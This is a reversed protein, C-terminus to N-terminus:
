YRYGLAATAGLSSGQTFSDGTNEIYDYGIRALVFLAGDRRTRVLDVSVTGNVGATVGWVNPDFDSRSSARQYVLVGFTLGLALQVRGSVHLNFAPGLTVVQYPLGIRTAGAEVSVRAGIGINPDQGGVELEFHAAAFDERLARRYSVGVHGQVLVTTPPSPARAVVTCCDQAPYPTPIEVMGPAPEDAHAAVAFLAAALGVLPRLGRM